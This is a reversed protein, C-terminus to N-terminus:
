FAFKREQGKVINYEPWDRNAVFIALSYTDKLAVGQRIPIYKAGGSTSFRLSQGYESDVVSVNDGDVAIDAVPSGVMEFVKSGYEQVDELFGLVETTM